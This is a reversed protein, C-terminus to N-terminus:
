EFMDSRETKRSTQKEPTMLKENKSGVRAKIVTNTTRKNITKIPTKLPSNLESRNKLDLQEKLFANERLLQKMTAEHQAKAREREEKMQMAIMHIGKVLEALQKLKDSYDNGTAQISFDEVEEKDLQPSKTKRKEVLIKRYESIENTEEVVLLLLEEVMTKLITENVTVKPSDWDISNLKLQIEDIMEMKKIFPLKEGEFFTM